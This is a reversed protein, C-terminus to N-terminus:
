YQTSLESVAFYSLPRMYFYASFCGHFCPFFLGTFVNKKWKLVEAEELTECQWQIYHCFLQM